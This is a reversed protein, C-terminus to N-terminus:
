FNHKVRLASKKRQLECAKRYLSESNVNLNITAKLSAQVNNMRKWIVKAEKDSLDGCDLNILVNTMNLTATYYERHHEPLSRLQFFTKIQNLM